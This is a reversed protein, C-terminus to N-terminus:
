FISSLKRVPGDICLPILALGVPSIYTVLLNWHKRCFVFGKRKSKDETTESTNMNVGSPEESGNSAPKAHLINEPKTEEM